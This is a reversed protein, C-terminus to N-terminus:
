DTTPVSEISTLLRQLDDENEEVTKTPGLIKFFITVEEEHLIVILLSHNKSHWTGGSGMYEGTISVKTAEKSHATITEIQPKIPGGDDTRFLSAWRKVNDDFKGEEDTAFLRISFLASRPNDEFPIIYNCTLLPSYPASWSWSVPKTTKFAGFTIVSDDEPPINIFKNSKDEPADDDTSDLLSPAPNSIEKGESPEERPPAPPNNTQQECNLLLCCPIIIHLIKMALLRM